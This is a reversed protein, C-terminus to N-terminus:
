LSQYFTLVRSSIAIIQCPGHAPISDELSVSTLNALGIQALSGNINNCSMERTPLHSYFLLTIKSCKRTGCGIRIRCPEFLRALAIRREIGKAFMSSESMSGLTPSQLRHLGSFIFILTWPRESSQRPGVECKLLIILRFVRTKPGM